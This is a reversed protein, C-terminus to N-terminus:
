RTLRAFPVPETCSPTNVYLTDTTEDYSYRYRIVQNPLVGHHDHGPQLTYEQYHWTGATSDLKITHDALEIAGIYQVSELSDSKLTITDQYGTGDANFNFYDVDGDDQSTTGDHAWRGVLQALTAETSSPLPWTSAGGTNAGGENKACDWFAYEDPLPSFDPIVPGSTSGDDAAGAAGGLEESSAGSAGAEAETPSSGGKAATPGSGGKAATPGSGGKAATPGSGGKLLPGSGGKAATPGGERRGSGRARVEGGSAQTPGYGGSAQTPGHGGQGERAREEAVGAAGASADIEIVRGSCAWACSALIATLGWGTKRMGCAAM